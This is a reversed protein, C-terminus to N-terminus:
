TLGKLIDRTQREQSCLTELAQIWLSVDPVSLSPNAIASDVTNLNDVLLERLRHFLSLIDDSRPAAQIPAVMVSDERGTSVPVRKPWDYSLSQIPGFKVSDGTMAKVVVSGTLPDELLRTFSKGQGKHILEIPDVPQAGSLVIPLQFTEYFGEQLNNRLDVLSRAQGLIPNSLLVQHLGQQFAVAMLEDEPSLKPAITNTAVPSAQPSKAPPAVKAMSTTALPHTSPPKKSQIKAPPPGGMAKQQSMRSELHVRAVQDLPTDAPLLTSIYPAGARNKSFAFLHGFTQALVDALGGPPVAEPPIPFPQWYMQMYQEPM